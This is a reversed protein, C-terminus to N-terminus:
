VTLCCDKARFFSVRKPLKSLHNQKQIDDLPWQCQVHTVREGPHLTEAFDGNQLPGSENGLRVLSKEAGQVQSKWCSM